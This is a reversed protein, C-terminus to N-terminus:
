HAVAKIRKALQTSVGIRNLASMVIAEMIIDAITESTFYQEALEYTEDSVGDHDILAVEEALALLAKEEDTFLDTEKWASLLFIRRQTEGAEL